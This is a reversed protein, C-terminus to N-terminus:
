RTPVVARQHSEYWFLMVPLNPAVFASSWVRSMGGVPPISFISHGLDLFTHPAADGIAVTSDSWAIVRTDNSLGIGGSNVQLHTVGCADSWSAPIARVSHVADVLRPVRFSRGGDISSALALTDFFFTGNREAQLWAVRLAGSSAISITPSRVYVDDTATVRVPRSWREDDLSRRAYWLVDHFNTSADLPAAIFLAHVTDGAVDFTVESPLLSVFSILHSVRWRLGSYILHAFPVNSPVPTAAVLTHLQGRRDLRVPASLGDEWRLASDALILTPPSVVGNLVQAAWVQTAGEGGTRDPTTVGATEGWLLHVVGLADIGTRLARFSMPLDPKAIEVVAGTTRDVVLGLATAPFSPAAQGGLQPPYESAIVLQGASAAVATPHMSASDNFARWILRPPSWSDAACAGQALLNAPSVSLLACALWTRLQSPSSM